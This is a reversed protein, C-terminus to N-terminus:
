PALRRPRAEFSGEISAVMPPLVAPKQELHCQGRATRFLRSHDKRQGGESGKRASRLSLSTNTSCKWLFDASRSTWLLEQVFGQEGCCPAATFDNPPVLLGLTPFGGPRRFAAVESCSINAALWLPRPCQAREYDEWCSEVFEFNMSHLEEVDRAYHGFRLTRLVM